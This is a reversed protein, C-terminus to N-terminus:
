TSMVTFLEDGSQFSEHEAVAQEKRVLRDEIKLVIAIAALAALIELVEAVMAYGVSDLADVMVRDVSVFRWLLKSIVVMGWWVGILPSAPNLMCETPDAVNTDPNSAKWIEQTMQAPRVLQLFPVFFGGIGWGPGYQLEEVGMERVSKNAKYLWFGFVVGWSISVVISVIRIVSQRTQYDAVEEEGLREGSTVRVLLSRESISHYLSIGSHIISICAFILLVRAVTRRSNYINNM